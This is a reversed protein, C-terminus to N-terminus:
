SAHNGEVREFLRYFQAGQYIGLTGSEQYRLRFEVVQPNWTPERKQLLELAEHAAQYRQRAQSGRGGQAFEDGQQIQNYIRVYEDDTSDALVALSAALVAPAIRILWAKM